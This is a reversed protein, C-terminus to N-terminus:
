AKEARLVMRALLMVLLWGTWPKVAGYLLPFVRLLLPMLALSLLLGALCGRLWLRVAEMAFGRKVLDMGPLVSVSSDEDVAGLVLTPVIDVMTQAMGMALLLASAPVLLGTATLFPLAELMLAAFLNVHIGPVLGTAVGLLAGLSAVLAVGLLGAQALDLLRLMWLALAEM